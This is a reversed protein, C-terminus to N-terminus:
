RKGKAIKEASYILWKSLSIVAISLLLLIFGLFLLSSVHLKTVAETMENALTSAITSSPAFLSPSIKHQNGIVFTVAMTEGLARGLALFTAGIIGKKAYPLLIGFAVEAKTSGIAYASERVVNPVLLLLERCISVITPLVMISLIFGATFVGIGMPPGSFIKMDPFKEQIPIYVRTSLIPALVFLGWMGYIISPIAALLEVAIGAPKAIYSPAIETLFFATLLGLPFAIIIAIVSTIVTGFIQPLAGYVDKVPDWRTGWLFKLGFARIAPLSEYFLACFILIIMSLVFLASFFSFLRFLSREKKITGSILKL